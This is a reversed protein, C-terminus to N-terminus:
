LLPPILLLSLYILPKNYVSLFYLSLINIYKVRIIKGKNPDIAEPNKPLFDPIIPDCIIVHEQTIIVVIKDNTAKVSTAKLLIATDIWKNLHTSESDSLTNHPNLKSLKVTDINIGTKTTDDKTCIYEISYM